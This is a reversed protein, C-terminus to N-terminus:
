VNDLLRKEFGGAWEAERPSLTKRTAARQRAERQLVHTTGTEDRHAHFEIKRTAKGGDCCAARAVSLGPVSGPERLRKVRRPKVNIHIDAGKRCRKRERRRGDAGCLWVGM